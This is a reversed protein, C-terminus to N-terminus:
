RWSDALALPTRYFVYGVAESPLVRDVRKRRRKILSLLPRANLLIILLVKLTTTIGVDLSDDGSNYETNNM